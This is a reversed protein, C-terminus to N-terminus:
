DIPYADEYHEDCVPHDQVYSTAIRDCFECATGEPPRTEDCYICFGDEEPYENGCVNCEVLNDESM